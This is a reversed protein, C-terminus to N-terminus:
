VWWISAVGADGVGHIPMFNLEAFTREPIKNLNYMSFASWIGFTRNAPTPWYGEIPCSIIAPGDPPFDEEPHVPAFPIMDIDIIILYKATHRLPSNHFWRMGGNFTACGRQSTPVSADFGKNQPPIDEPPPKHSQVCISHTDYCAPLFNLFTQNTTTPAMMDIAVIRVYNPIFADLALLAFLSSSHSIFSVFASFRIANGRAQLRLLTSLLKWNEGGATTLVVTDIQRVNAQSVNWQPISFNPFSTPVFLTPLLFLALILSAILGSLFREGINSQLLM